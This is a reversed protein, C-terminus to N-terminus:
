RPADPGAPGGAGRVVAAEAAGVVRGALAATQLMERIVVLAREREVPDEAAAHMADAGVELARDGPMGGFSACASAVGTGYGSFWVDLLISEVSVGELVRLQPEGDPTVEDATIFQGPQHTM